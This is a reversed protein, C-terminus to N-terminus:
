SSTSQKKDHHLEGNYTSLFKSIAVSAVYTLAKGQYEPKTSLEILANYAATGQRFEIRLPKSTTM